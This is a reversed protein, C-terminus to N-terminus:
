RVLTRGLPTVEKSFTTSSCSKTVVYYRTTTLGDRMATLIRLDQGIQGM